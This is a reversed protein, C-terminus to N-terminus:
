FGTDGLPRAPEFGAGPVRGDGRQDVAVSRLLCRSKSGVLTAVTRLTKPSEIKAPRMMVPRSSSRNQAGSTVNGM